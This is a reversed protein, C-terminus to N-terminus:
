IGGGEMLATIRMNLEDLTRDKRPKELRWKEIAEDRTPANVMDLVQWDQPNNTSLVIVKWERM